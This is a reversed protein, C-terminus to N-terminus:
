HATESLSRYREVITDLRDRHQVTQVCHSCHRGVFCDHSQRVVILLRSRIRTVRPLLATSHLTAQRACCCALPMIGGTWESVQFYFSSQREVAATLDAILAREDESIEAQAAALTQAPTETEETLTKLCPNFPKDQYREEWLLKGRKRPGRGCEEGEDELLSAPCDLIRGFRSHCYNAYSVQLCIPSSPPHPPLCPTPWM